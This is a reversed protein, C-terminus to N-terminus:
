SLVKWVASIIVFVVLAGGAILLVVSGYGGRMWGEIKEVQADDSLKLRGALWGSKESGQDDAADPM